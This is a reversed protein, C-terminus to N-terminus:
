PFLSSIRKELEVGVGQFASVCEEHSGDVAAPDPMPWHLREVGPGMDPCFEEECLTIVTDVEDVPVDALGKSSHGGLDIGIRQMAEVALPHVRAPESGASFVQVGEPAVRRAIGEAM